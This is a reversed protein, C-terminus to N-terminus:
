FCQQICDMAARLFQEADDPFVFLLLGCIMIWSFFQLNMIVDLMLHLLIGSILIPYRLERVWILVGLSLEELLTGWTAVKVLPLSLMCRPPRFRVYADVWLPYWAATGNWWMKGRLKWYVTRLYVICIQLQMIRVPWPDIEPFEKFDTSKNLADVSLGASADSFIAMFCFMRLLTDGSSLIYANRHHISVLTLFVLVSCIRFQWGILFGVVAIVHVLLIFRFSATSAPLLHLLCFRLNRSYRSWVAHNWIGDASYFDAVLPLLLFSNGLLITGFLIRFLVLTACSVPSHFFSNWADILSQLPMSATGTGIALQFDFQSDAAQNHLTGCLIGTGASPDGATSRFLIDFSHSLSCKATSRPHEPLM